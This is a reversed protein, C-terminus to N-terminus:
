CCYPKYLKWPPGGALAATLYQNPADMGLMMTWLGAGFMQGVVQQQQINSIIQLAATMEALTPGFNGGRRALVAQQELQETQVRPDSNLAMIEPDSQLIKSGNPSQMAAQLDPRRGLLEAQAVEIFGHIERLAGITMFVQLDIPDLRNPDAARILQPIPNFGPMQLQMAYQQLVDPRRAVNQQLRVSELVQPAEQPTLWALWQPLMQQQMLWGVQEESMNSLCAQGERSELFSRIGKPVRHYAHKDIRRLESLWFLYRQWPVVKMHKELANEVYGVDLTAANLDITEDLAPCFYRIQFDRQELQQAVRKPDLLWVVNVPATFGQGDTLSAELLRRDIGGVGEPLITGPPAGFHWVTDCYEGARLRSYIRIEYVGDPRAFSIAQKPELRQPAVARVATYAGKFMVRLWDANLEWIAYGQAGTGVQNWCEADINRLTAWKRTPDIAQADSIV